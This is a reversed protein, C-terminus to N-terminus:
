KVKVTASMVYSRKNCWEFISWTARTVVLDTVPLTCKKTRQWRKNWSWQIGWLTGNKDFHIEKKVGSFEWFFIHVEKKIDEGIEDEGPAVYVLDVWIESSLHFYIRSMSIELILVVLDVEDSIEVTRVVLGIMDLKKESMWLVSDERSNTKKKTEDM